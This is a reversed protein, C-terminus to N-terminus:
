TLGRIPELSFIYITQCTGMRTYVQVLTSVRRGQDGSGGAFKTVPKAELITKVSDELSGSKELYKKFVSFTKNM